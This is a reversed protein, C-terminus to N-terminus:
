EDHVELVTELEVAAGCPIGSVGLATRVHGDAFLEAVLESLPNLVIHHHEFSPDSRVYGRLQLVSRIRHLSGFQLEFASLGNLFAQISAAQGQELTLDSGVRGVWPIEGGVFPLQGAMYVLSGIQRISVYPGGKPTARELMYGRHNLMTRLTDTM